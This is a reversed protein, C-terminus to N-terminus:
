TTEQTFPVGPQKKPWVCVCLIQVPLENFFYWQIMSDNLIMSENSKTQILSLYHHWLPTYDFNICLLLRNRYDSFCQIGLLTKCISSYIFCRSRDRILSFHSTRRGDLSILFHIKSQLYPASPHM